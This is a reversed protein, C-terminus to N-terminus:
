RPYSQHKICGQILAPRLSGAQIHVRKGTCFKVAPMVCSTKCDSISSAVLSLSSRRGSSSIMRASTWRPTSGPLAAWRTSSRCLPLFTVTWAGRGASSPKARRDRDLLAARSVSCLGGLRDGSDAGRGSGVTCGVAGAGFLDPMIQSMAAAKKTSTRTTTPM